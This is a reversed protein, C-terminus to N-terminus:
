FYESIAELISVENFNFFSVIKEFNKLSFNRKGSEVDRVSRPTVGIAEAVQKVSLGADL